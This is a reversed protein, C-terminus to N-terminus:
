PLIKYFIKCKFHRYFIKCKCERVGGSVNAEREREHQRLKTGMVWDVMSGERGSAGGEEVGGIIPEVKRRHWGVNARGKALAM